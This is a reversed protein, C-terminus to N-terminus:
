TNKEIKLIKLFIEAIETLMKDLNENMKSIKEASVLM